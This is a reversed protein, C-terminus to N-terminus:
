GFLDVLTLYPLGSEVEAAAARLVLRDTLEAAVAAIVTSKGIGAPGLLLVSDGADLCARASAVLDGRDVPALSRRQAVDALRGKGARFPSEPAGSFGQQLSLAVM